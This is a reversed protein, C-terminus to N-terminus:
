FTIQVKPKRVGSWIEIQDSRIGSELLDEVVKRVHDSTTRIMNEVNVNATPDAPAGELVLVLVLGDKSAVPEPARPVKTTPVTEPEAGYAGEVSPLSKKERQLAEVDDSDVIAVIQRTGGGISRVVAYLMEDNFSGSVDILWGPGNADNFTKTGTTGWQQAIARGIKFRIEDPRVQTGAKRMHDVLGLVAPELIVVDPSEM